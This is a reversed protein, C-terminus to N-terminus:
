NEQVKKCYYDIDQANFARGNDVSRPMYLGLEGVIQSQDVAKDFWKKCLQVKLQEREASACGALALM